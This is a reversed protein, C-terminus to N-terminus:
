PRKPAGGFKPLYVVNMKMGNPTMVDSPKQGAQCASLWKAEIMIHTEARPATGLLSLGGSRTSAVKMTYANDFSGTV